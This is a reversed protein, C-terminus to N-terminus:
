QSEADFAINFPDTTALGMINSINLKKMALNVEYSIRNDYVVIIDFDALQSTLNKLSDLITYFHKHGRMSLISRVDSIETNFFIIPGKRM